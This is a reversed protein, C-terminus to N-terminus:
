GNELRDSMAQLQRMVESACKKADAVIESGTFHIIDVGALKLSRDRQKDRAVQAKTKEHFDHGDCEVALSFNGNELMAAILFDVRYTRTITEIEYQPNIVYSGNAFGMLQFYDSMAIGLKWEIPSECEKLELLLGIGHNFCSDIIMKKVDPMLLDWDERVGENDLEENWKRYQGNRKYSFCNKWLQDLRIIISVGSSHKSVKVEEIEM